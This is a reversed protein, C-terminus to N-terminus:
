GSIKLMEKISYSTPKSAEREHRGDVHRIASKGDWKRWRRKVALRGALHGTWQSGVALLKRMVVTSELASRM